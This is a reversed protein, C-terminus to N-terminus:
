AAEKMMVQYFLVAGVIASLIGAVAGIQMVIPGLHFASGVWVLLLELFFLVSGLTILPSGMRMTGLTAIGVFIAWPAFVWAVDANLDKMGGTFFWFYFGASAWFTSMAIYFAGGFPANERFAIIGAILMGIGGTFLTVLAVPQPDPLWGALYASWVTVAIGLSAVGLPFGSSPRDPASSAM